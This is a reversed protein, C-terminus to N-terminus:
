ATRRWVNAVYAPPQVTTSKGYVSSSRSADLHLLASNNAIGNGGSFANNAYNDVYFAGDATPTSYFNENSVGNVNGTINPLGAAITTNGNSGTGTWLAKGSSVLSWTSNTGDSKKVISALPCTTTNSSTIYLSGVPYLTEFLDRVWATTAVDNSNSNSNPSQSLTIYKNNNADVRTTISSTHKTENGEADTVTKRAGFAQSTGGDSAQTTEIYSIYKGNKDQVTSWTYFLTKDGPNESDINRKFIINGNNQITNFTAIGTFTKKGGITEDDITHVVNTSPEVTKGGTTIGDHIRLEKREIDYTLEGPAGKFADNEATTGRRFQLQKAM